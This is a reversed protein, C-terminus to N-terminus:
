WRGRRFGWLCNDCVGKYLDGHVAQEDGDARGSILAGVEERQHHPYVIGAPLIVGLKVEGQTEDAFDIPVLRVIDGVGEGGDAEGREVDLQGADATEIALAHDIREPGADLGAVREFPQMFFGVAGADRGAHRGFAAGIEGMDGEGAEAAGAGEDRGEEGAVGCEGTREEAHVAKGEIFAADAMAAGAIM